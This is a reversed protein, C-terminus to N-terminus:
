KLVAFAEEVSRVVFPRPGRWEDHWRKQRENLKGKATKIEILHLRMNRDAVIIDPCGRGLYSLDLVPYGAAKLADVIERHNADVRRPTDRM